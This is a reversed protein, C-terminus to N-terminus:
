YQEYFSSVAVVAHRIAPETHMLRPLLYTSFHSDFYGSLIPLTQELFFALSRKEFPDGPPEQHMEKILSLGQSSRAIAVSGECRQSHCNAHRMKNCRNRTLLAEM